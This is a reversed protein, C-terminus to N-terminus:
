PGQLPRIEQARGPLPLLTRNLPAKERSRPRNQKAQQQFSHAGGRNLMFSGWAPYACVSWWGEGGLTWGVRHLSWSCQVCVRTTNKHVGIQLEWVGPFHSMRQTNIKRGLLQPTTPPQLYPKAHTQNQPDRWGQKPGLQFRQGELQHSHVGSGKTSGSAKGKCGTYGNRPGEWFRCMFCVHHGNFLLFFFSFILAM